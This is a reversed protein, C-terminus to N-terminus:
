VTVIVDNGDDDDHDDQCSLLTPFNKTRAMMAVKCLRRKRVNNCFKSPIYTEVLSSREEFEDDNFIKSPIYTEVYLSREEFCCLLEFEDNNCFKPYKHYVLVLARFCVLM